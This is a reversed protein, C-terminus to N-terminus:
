KTSTVQTLVADISGIIIKGKMMVPVLRSDKSLWVTLRGQHQFLGSAKLIPEVVFCEFRGAPVDVTETRLIRIELPYNKKDAHNQIVVTMGVELPKTRLFYLSSLVDQVEAPVEIVSGDSYTATHQEQDFAVVDDRQY